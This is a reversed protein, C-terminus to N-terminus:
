GWFNYKSSMAATYANGGASYQSSLSDLNTEANDAIKGALFALKKTLDSKPGLVSELTDPDAEKLKDKDLSLNGDKSMTIGISELAESNDSILDIMSQKYFDNLTGSTTRLAKLTDNYSEVLAAAGDYIEKYDGSEKAAVFSTDVTFLSARQALQDASKELKEYDKQRVTDVEKKNKNKLASLLNTNSGNGNVFNLLSVNNVPLGAKQSSANLMQTTIRM